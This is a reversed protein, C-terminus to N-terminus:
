EDNKEEKSRMGSLIRRDILAIAGMVVIASVALGVAIWVELTM